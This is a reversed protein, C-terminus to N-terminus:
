VLSLNTYHCNLTFQVAFLIDRFILSTVTGRLKFVKTTTPKTSAPYDSNLTNKVEIKHTTNDLTIYPFSVGDTDIIALTYSCTRSFTLQFPSETGYSFM